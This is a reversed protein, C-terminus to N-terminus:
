LAKIYRSGIIVIGNVLPTNISGSANFVKKAGTDINVLYVKKAGLKTCLLTKTSPDYSTANFGFEPTDFTRLISLNSSQIIITKLDNRVQDDYQTVIIEDTNDGRFWRFYYNSPITGILTQIGSNVSYVERGGVSYRGDDSISRWEPSIEQHLVIGNQMDAIGVIDNPPHVHDNDIALFSVVQNSAGSVTGLHAVATYDGAIPMASEVNNVLDLQSIVEGLAISGIYHLFNGPWAVSMGYFSNGSITRSTLLNFSDDYINITPGTRSIFKNAVKSYYWSQGYTTAVPMINGVFFDISREFHFIEEGSKDLMKFSMDTRHPFSGEVKVNITTDMYRTVNARVAGDESITYSKLAGYYKPKSWVFRATTDEPHFEMSLDIPPENVTAHSIAKRNNLIKITVELSSAGGGDIYDLDILFNKKPDTVVLSKYNNGSRLALEYNVFNPKKYEPWSYKLHGNDISTTVKFNPPADIDIIVIWEKFITAQRDKFFSILSQDNLSENFSLKLKHPGTIFYSDPISFQGQRNTFSYFLSNDFYAEGKFQPTGLDGKIDFTFTVPAFLYITDEDVFNTLSITGTPEIPTIEKTIGTPEDLTFSCAALLLLLGSLFHTALRRM